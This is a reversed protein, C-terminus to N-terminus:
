CKEILNFTILKQNQLLKVELCNSLYCIDYDFTLDFELGKTQGFLGRCELIGDFGSRSIIYLKEVKEFHFCSDYRETSLSQQQKQLLILEERIKLFNFIGIKDEM